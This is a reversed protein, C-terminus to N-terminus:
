AKPDSVAPICIEGKGGKEVHPALTSVRKLNRQDKSSPGFCDQKGPMVLSPTKLHGLAFHIDAPNIPPPSPWGLLAFSTHMIKNIPKNTPKRVPQNM